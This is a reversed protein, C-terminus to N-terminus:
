KVVLKRAQEVMRAGPIDKGAKLLAATKVKDPQMMPTPPQRWYEQPLAAEDYIDLKAAVKNFKVVAEPWDYREDDKLWGALQAQSRDAERDKVNARELTALAREDIRKAEDALLTAQHRLNLLYCAWARIKESREVELAEFAAMGAEDVECTETDVAASIADYLDAEIDYLTRRDSM